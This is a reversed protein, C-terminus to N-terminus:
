AKGKVESLSENFKWESKVKVKVSLSNASFNVQNHKYFPLFHSNWGVYEFKM